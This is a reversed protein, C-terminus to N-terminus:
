TQEDNAPFKIIFTTGKGVETTCTIEGNMGEVIGKVIALGLGMGSTKTTFDPLFIREMRDPLIGCGNDSVRVVLQHQERAIHITVIGKSHDDIAQVANNLLNTFLRILQSRDGVILPDTVECKLEYRIGTTDQYLSLVFGVAEELDVETFGVTKMKAFDSFDSAIVSLADIQEVLTKTFRALRQDWDPAKDNWAKELYQASLKIPTLPNKIEHAVQRAMERWASERESRALLEASKGLEDIMRNYEAVLQGIEDTQKWIIKENVKGLRLLSMKHALIALPATIYNSILVTFFIGFLILLIYVNLFTVLFSSIEKKLEDQKAFYPLNVFGLLQDHDNYFPLYASNFQMEGITEQHIYLSYKELILNRYADANMRDSLLGEEFIQPRSSSVLMGTGNYVNIDTFFVNSLKVLFDELEEKPVSQLGSLQSFKHQVEVVISYARERLNDINKKSNIEIINIIQVVGIALMTLMLIGILFVHLKTRLTAIFPNLRAPFNVMISVVLAMMTFLIFLYSFPTAFSLFSDDKKSIILTTADNIRYRFHIMEDETFCTNEASDSQYRGSEMKYGYTGVARILRGNQFLAYSYDSINPLVVRAKDMLLGPYGPDPFTNKLNFEIFIAPRIDSASVLGKRTFVALYYEKGFGDDLFYLDPVETVEGYSQIIGRFYRDCNVLYGQPQIRLQKASDCLTIQIQYKRWYDKFYHTKLYEALSDQGIIPIGSSPNIWRNLLSDAQLRRETLEYLVETVPNRQTVLKGALLNLKETEKTRNSGNLLITAFIAYFCLFFLLNQVSFLAMKKAKFFCHWATYILFFLTVTFNINWGALWCILSYGLAVTIASVAIRELKQSSLFIFDFVRGALLWLSFLLASIIYLGFGSEYTLGSINKLNLSLSSNIVLDSMLYAVAQFLLLLIALAFIMRSYRRISGIPRWNNNLSCRKYAMLSIVFLLLANLTFDGLSPLFVSSSYYAPGFLESRYLEGPFESYHQVVRLIVVTTVYVIVLLNERSKFWVLGSLVRFLFYLLCLSGLIFLLFVVASAGGDELRFGGFDLSFLFTGNRSYIPFQGAKEIISVSAPFDLLASFHNKIFENQFSFESKILYSGVFNYSGRKKSQFGYWGNKLHSAFNENVHSRIIEEPLVIKNNSWYILSDDKYVFQCIENGKRGPNTLDRASFTGTKEFHSFDAILFDIRSESKTELARHKKQFDRTMTQPGNQHDLYLRLGLISLYLFVALFFWPFGRFFMM